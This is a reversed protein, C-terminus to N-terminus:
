LGLGTLKYKFRYGAKVAEAEVMHRIKSFHFTDSADRTKPAEKKFGFGLSRGADADFAFGFGSDKLTETFRVEKKKEDIRFKAWYVFKQKSLLVTREGVPYELTFLGKDEKLEAPIAEAIKKIEEILM